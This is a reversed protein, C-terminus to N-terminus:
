SFVSQGWTLIKNWDRCDGEPAVQFVQNIWRVLWSSGASNMGIGAFYAEEAPNLLERINNIYAQRNSKSKEEDGLNLIHVCFLALPVRNLKEQNQKVFDVAEALWRGGNVASGIIVRSYSYLSPNELAPKVDVSFGRAALSEGIASAVGTTSGTRTAYAILTRKDENATEGYHFSPTEVVPAATGPPTRTAAYGLGCCAVASVGLSAGAITFFKRRSIRRNDM